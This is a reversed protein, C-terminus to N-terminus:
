AVASRKWPVATLLVHALAWFDYYLLAFFYKLGPIPLYLFAVLGLLGFGHTVWFARWFERAHVVSGRVRYSFAVLWNFGHLIIIASLVQEPRGFLSLAFTCLGVLWVYREAQSSGNGSTRLRLVAYFALLATSITLAYRIYEYLPFAVSLTACFALVAFLLVSVVHPARVREGYLTFEDYAFHIPFLLAILLFAFLASEGLLTLYAVFCVLLLLVLALYPFRMKGAKYQYLFSMLFHGQGFIVFVWILWQSPVFLAICTLLVPVVYGRIYTPTGYRGDGAGVFWM